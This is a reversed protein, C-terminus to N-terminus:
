LKQQKFILDRIIVYDGFFDTKIAKQFMLVTGANRFSKDDYFKHILTEHVIGAMSEEVLLKAKEYSIKYRIKRNSPLKIRVEIDSLKLQNIDFSYLNNCQKCYSRRRRNGKSAFEKYWKSKGCIKCTKYLNCAITM